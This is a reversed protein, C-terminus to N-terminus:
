PPFKEELAKAFAADTADVLTVTNGTRRLRIVRHPDDVHFQDPSADYEKQWPILHRQMVGRRLADFFERADKETTWVSRWLLHDGHEKSGAWLAYRDGAWGETATTAYDVDAFTRVHEYAGIEGAVNTHLAAIGNVITDPFSVSVPVFPPNALYLADPHLIEASSRPPRSYANNVATYGGKRHIAQVFLNGADESWKWMATLFAPANPSPPPTAPAQGRDFNTHMPDGISFQVRTYNADGLALSKRALLDDDNGPEPPPAANGFNQELLMPLLAGAFVERSDARALSAESQFYFKGTGPEFFGGPKMAALGALAATYDFPASVWGMAVCARMRADAQEPTLGAAAQSSLRQTIEEPTSATWVPKLRFALERLALVRAAIEGPKPPPKAAEIAEALQQRLTTNERELTQVADRKEQELSALAAKHAEDGRRLSATAETTTQQTLRADGFREYRSWCWVGAVAALSLLSTLVAGPHM